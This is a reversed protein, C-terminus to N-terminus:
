REAGDATHVVGPVGRQALGLMQSREALVDKAFNTLVGKGLTQTVDDGNL